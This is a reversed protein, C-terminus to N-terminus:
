HDSCEVVIAIVDLFSRDDFQSRQVCRFHYLIYQNSEFNPFLYISLYISVKNLVSDM